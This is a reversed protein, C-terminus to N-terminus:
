RHHGPPHPPHPPHPHPGHPPHPFHPLHHVPPTPAATTTVVPVSPLCVPAEAGLAQVGSLLPEQLAAPVRHANVLAVAQTRLKPIDQSQACANEGAIRHTLAILRAADAHDLSPRSSGGCGTAVVIVLLIPLWRM